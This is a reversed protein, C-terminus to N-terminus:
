EIRKAGDSIQSVYFAAELGTVEKYNKGVKEIFEDVASEKVISVTCGGFGAGTMRSGLVGDIKRAEDVLTDLELSTVEYDSKLSDHSANMLNGFEVLNGDKLYQVAKLCRDDESIVHRARRFLVDDTLLYSLDNFDEIKIKGLNRFKKDGKNLAELASECESRRENYKSDTLKRSSNTNSIVIKHDGIKLPVLEFDLTECDLFIAHEAKGMSVAFQDMIGCNMGVFQNEAMQGIKALEVRDIQLEFMENFAYGTVLEISASSSLGAGNPINGSFLMEMGELELGKEMLFNIVGLPYNVWEGGHKESIRTFPVEAKYDFNTTAFKLLSDEAKRALLYTGVELACPFVYGENYDTHEGILNVRGPAFFIHVQNESDGYRDKFEQKLTNLEM